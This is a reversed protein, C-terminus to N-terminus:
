KLLHSHFPFLKANRRKYEDTPTKNQKKFVQPLQKIKYQNHRKMYQAKPKYHKNNNMQTKQLSWLLKM